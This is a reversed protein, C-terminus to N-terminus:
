YHFDYDSSSSVFSSGFFLTVNFFLLLKYEERNLYNLRIYWEFELHYHTQSRPIWGPSHCQLWILTQEGAAASNNLCTNNFYQRNLKIISAVFLLVFNAGEQANKDVGDLNSKQSM